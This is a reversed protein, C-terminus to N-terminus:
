LLSLFANRRKENISKFNYNTACYELLAAGQENRLTENEALRKIATIWGKRDTVYNVIDKPFGLYPNVKSVVVPVAKGAAELIKINSKYANFNNKVLPILMVDAHRFMKYYEFVDMGRIITYPLKRDNTFYSAMRSWYYIETDNSDAWGGMVMNVNEVHKNLEFMVGQLLKLDPEHTIGGAWFLKVNDTAVREGDFQTHGYPISNPLIEINKNHPYIAEALREHTCTVLDANRMHKILRGAFNSANYGEYMLHDHSLHWYDDVDVVLKFGYQRRREILDENDWTRNIYVIDYKHEQWQEDTMSDTIRGYEKEMFSLPLMLRHYGCGSYKQTLTLIKM